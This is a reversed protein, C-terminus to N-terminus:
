HFKYILLYIISPFIQTVKLIAGVWLFLIDAFIQMFLFVNLALVSPTEIYSLTIFNM